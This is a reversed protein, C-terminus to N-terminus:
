VAGYRVEMRLSAGTQAAEGSEAMRSPAEPKNTIRRM